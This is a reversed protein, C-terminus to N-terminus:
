SLATVAGTPSVGVTRSFATETAEIHAKSLEDDANAPELVYLGVLDMAPATM